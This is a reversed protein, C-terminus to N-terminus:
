APRALRNCYICRPHNSEFGNRQKEQLSVEQLKKEISSVSPEKEENNDDGTETANEKVNDKKETRKEPALMTVPDVEFRFDKDSPANWVLSKCNNPDSCQWVETTSNKLESM